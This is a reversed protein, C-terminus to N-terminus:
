KIQEVKRHQLWKSQKKLRNLCDPCLYLEDCWPEFTVTKYFHELDAKAAGCKNCCQDRTLESM